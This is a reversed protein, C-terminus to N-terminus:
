PLTLEERLRVCERTPLNLFSPTFAVLWEQLQEFPMPRAFVYGQIRDIGLSRAMTVEDLQEVGEIMVKAGLRRALDVISVVLAETRPDGVLGTVFSRDIKLEDVALVRLNTLSSFGVGFDDMSVAIGAARLEDVTRAAAEPNQLLSEETVEICLYQPGMRYKKLIPLIRQMLRGESLDQESVNLSLVLGPRFRHLASLQQIGREIVSDTLQGLLGATSAANIVAAAPLAHGGSSLRFLAEIGVISGDHLSIQPQYHLEFDGIQLADRVISALRLTGFQDVNADLHPEYNSRLQKARYMSTDALRMLDGGDTADSPFEASGISLRQDIRVGDILVPVHVLTVIREALERGVDPKRLIGAFEDGGLRFLDFDDALGRRARLLRAAVTRLLQDGADHGLTDNVDKFQDLDLIFITFPQDAEVLGELQERLARRNPLGTLDDTRAERHLDSSVRVRHYSISLRLMILVVAAVACLRPLLVVGPLSLFALAVALAVWGVLVAKSRSEAADNRASWADSQRSAVAIGLYGLAAFRSGLGLVSRLHSEFLPLLDSLLFLLQSSLMWKILAPFRWSCLSGLTVLGGVMLAGLMPFMIAVFRPWGSSEGSFDTQVMWQALGAGILTAFVLGDILNEILPSVCRVRVFRYQSILTLPYTSLFLCTVLPHHIPLGLTLLIFGTMATAMGLAGLRWSLSDLDSSFSRHVAVVMALLSLIPVVLTPNGDIDAAFLFVAFCAIIGILKRLGSVKHWVNM